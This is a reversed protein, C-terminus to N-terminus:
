RREIIIDANHRKAYAEVRELFGPSVSDTNHWAKPTGNIWLRFIHKM